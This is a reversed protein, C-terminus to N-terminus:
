HPGRELDTDMHIGLPDQNPPPLNFLPSGPDSNNRTYAHRPQLNAEPGLWGAFPAQEQISSSSMITHDISVRHEDSSLSDTRQGTHVESPRQILPSYSDDSGRYQYEPRYPMRTSADSETRQRNPPIAPPFLSHALIPTEQVQVAGLPIDSMDTYEFTPRVVDSRRLRQPVVPDWHHEKTWFLTEQMTKILGVKYSLWELPQLTYRAIFRAFVRVFYTYQRYSRTMQLGKMADDYNETSLFSQQCWEVTVYFMSLFMVTATLVTGSTWYYLVWKSNSTDQVSFDLYGGAGGWGSTVCECTKYRRSTLLHASISTNANRNLTSICYAPPTCVMWLNTSARHVGALDHQLDGPTPFLLAGM